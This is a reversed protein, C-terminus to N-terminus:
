LQLLLRVGATGRYLGTSHCGGVRGSCASRCSREFLIKIVYEVGKQHAEDWQRLHIHGGGYIVKPYSDHEPFNTLATLPRRNISSRGVSAGSALGNDDGRAAHRTSTPWVRSTRNSTGMVPSTSPVSFPITDVPKVTQDFLGPGCPLRVSAKWGLTSDFDGCFWRMAGCQPYPGNGPKLVFGGAGFPRGVAERSLHWDQAERYSATRLTALRHRLM